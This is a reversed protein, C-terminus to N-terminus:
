TDSFNLIISVAALGILFPMFISLVLEDILIIQDTSSFTVQREPTSSVERCFKNTPIDVLIITADIPCVIM